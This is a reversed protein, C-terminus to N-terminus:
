ARRLQVRIATTQVHSVTPATTPFAGTVSAVGYGMPMGSGASSLNGVLPMGATYMRMTPTGGQACGILWYLGAALFQDITIEKFGTGTTTDITGADLILAGPFMSGSDAAIGLRVVSTAAVVTVEAGIRDYSGANPVWFPTFEQRSLTAANAATVIGAPSQYYYTARHPQLEVGGFRPISASPVYLDSRTM